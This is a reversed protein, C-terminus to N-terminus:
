GMLKIFEEYNVQDDGNMDAEKIMADVEADSLSEGMSKMVEKLEASTIFGNGDKDFAAFAAKMEENENKRSMLTLFENFDLTGDKNTDVNKMLNKLEAETSPKGLSQMVAGLEATSISGNGDKDFLAFAAKFESKQEETIKDAMTNRRQHQIFSSQLHRFRTGGTVAGM